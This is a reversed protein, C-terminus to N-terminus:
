LQETTNKLAGVREIYYQHHYRDLCFRELLPLPATFGCGNKELWM